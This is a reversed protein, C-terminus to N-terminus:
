IVQIIILEQFSFRQLVVVMRSVQELIKKKKKSFDPASLSFFSSYTSGAALM